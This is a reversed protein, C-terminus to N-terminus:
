AGKPERRQVPHTHHLLPCGADDLAPLEQLPCGASCRCFYSCGSQCCPQTREGAAMSADLATAAHAALVVPVSPIEPPPKLTARVTGMGPRSCRQEM